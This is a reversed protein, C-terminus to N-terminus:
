YVNFEMKEKNHSGDQIITIVDRFAKALPKSMLSINM